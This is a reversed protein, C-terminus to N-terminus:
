QFIQIQWQDINQDLTTQETIFGIIRTYVRSVDEPMKYCWWGGTNINNYDYGSLAFLYNSNHSNHANKAM